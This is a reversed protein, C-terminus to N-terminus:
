SGVEFGNRTNQIALPPLIESKYHERLLVDQEGKGIRYLEPHQRFDTTAFNLSYDFIKM